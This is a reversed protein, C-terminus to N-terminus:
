SFVLLDSLTLGVLQPYAIVLVAIHKPTATFELGANLLSLAYDVYFSVNEIFVAGNPENDALMAALVLANYDM